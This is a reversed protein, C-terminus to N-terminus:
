YSLARDTNRQLSDPLCLIIFTNISDDGYEGPVQVAAQPPPTSIHSPGAEPTAEVHNLSNPLYLANISDDGYEGPVQVIPPPDKAPNNSPPTLSRANETVRMSVKSCTKIDKLPHIDQYRQQSCNPM